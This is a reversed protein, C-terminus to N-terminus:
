IQYFHKLIEASKEPQEVMGMHGCNDLVEIQARQPLAAMELSREYLITSDEKGIIFLVKDGFNRLVESRDPRVRMAELAQVVSRAPTKSCEKIFLEMEAPHTAKFTETFLGNFLERIYRESGYEKVLEIAKLRNAKRLADDEFCHSHFLGIGKLSQPYKEAFALSVYGGMSHGVMVVRSSSEEVLVQYVADAYTMIDANPIFDSDGFGPLDVCIVNVLPSLREVLKNWMEKRECFGHILVLTDPANGTTTYCIKHKNLYAIKM